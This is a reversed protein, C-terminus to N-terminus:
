LNRIYGQFECVDFFMKFFSIFFKVSLFEISLDLSSRAFSLVKRAQIRVLIAKIPKPKTITLNEKNKFCSENSKSVLSRNEFSYEGTTPITITAIPTIIAIRAKKCYLFFSFCSFFLKKTEEDINDNNIIRIIM